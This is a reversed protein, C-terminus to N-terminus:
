FAFHPIKPKNAPELRWSAFLSHSSPGNIDGHAPFMSPIHPCMDEQSVSGTFLAESKVAIEPRVKRVEDVNPRWPEFSSPFPSHGLILPKGWTCPVHFRCPSGKKGAPVGGTLCEGKVAFKLRMKIVIGVKHAM